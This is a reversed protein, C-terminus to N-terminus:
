PRREARFVAAYNMFYEDLFLRVNLPQESQMKCQITKRAFALVSAANTSTALRKLLSGQAHFYRPAQGEATLALDVLWKQTWELARKLPTPGKEAKIARDIAAAAALPDIAPGRALEAVLSDLLASEGRTALEAALIPAGGALALWREGDAVGALNLWAQSAAEAPMAIKVSQCRSRITPLLRAPENTVLLFLTSPSPEELSKLLANATPRNMAEAPHILIVRLGRRHTGVHLFDELARIQEIKIQQSPKGKKRGGAEGEGGDDDAEEDLIEPQVLRFDPHNGQAFWNCAPCAGCARGGEIPTECLLAAAFARALESKGLGRQGAFLLAHPLRERRATLQAWTEPHLEAIDM